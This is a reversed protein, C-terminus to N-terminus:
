GVYLLKPMIMQFHHKVFNMGSILVAVEQSRGGASCSERAEDKTPVQLLRFRPLGNALAAGNSCNGTSPLLGRRRCDM